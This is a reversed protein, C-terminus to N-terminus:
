EDIHTGGEDILYGGDFIRGCKGCKHCTYWVDENKCEKAPVYDIFIMKSMKKGKTYIVASHEHFTETQINAGTVQASFIQQHINRRATNVTRM